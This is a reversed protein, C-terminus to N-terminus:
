NSTGNTEQMQLSAKIQVCDAGGQLQGNIM